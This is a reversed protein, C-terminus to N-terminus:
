KVRRLRYEDNDYIIETCSEIAQDFLINEWRENIVYDIEYKELYSCSKTYDVGQPSKDWGYYQRAVAYFDQDIRDWASWFQRPTFVVYVEPLFTRLGDAHSVVTVQRERKPLTAVEVQLAKIVLLEDPRVKYLDDFEDNKDVLFGYLSSGDALVYSTYHSYVVAFVLVLSLITQMIKKSSFHNLLYGLIVIESFTNFLSEFLRYYVNSAFAKSIFSTALPNLFFVALFLFHHLLYDIGKEKRYKVILLAIGSWRIVNLLNDLWSSHIFFYDKVMDYAAHNNFYHTVNWIYYPDKAMDYFSYAIALMPLVVIFVWFAYKSFFSDLTDLIKKGVDTSHFGYYIITIPMLLLFANFHDNYQIALVFLVMPLGIYSADRIVNPYGKKFRYFSVGMLLSFGIFLTSSSAAISAGFVLATAWRYNDDEEKIWRYLYYMMLAMFLSRWTNGYFAFAVKWYYFNTFFLAFITLTTKVWRNKYKFYAIMNLIALSSIVSYFMGFGWISIVINDIYVTSGILRVLINVSWSIFSAFHYYGQYLYVSVFESGTLGTWLNFNNLEDININQAIYNLYMQGDARPLDIEVVNFVIIFAILSAIVWLIQFKLYQRIIERFVRLSYVGLLAYLLITPIHIMLSSLNYLQAPYYLIQLTFLLAAFGLPATFHDNQISFRRKLFIGYATSVWLTLGLILSIKLM